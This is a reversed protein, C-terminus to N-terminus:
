VQSRRRHEVHEAHEVEHKHREEEVVSMIVDFQPGQFRKGYFIWYGALFIAMIGLVGSVYNMNNTSVPLVIPFCFFVNTVFVFIVSVTTLFYGWRGLKFPTDETQHKTLVSRGRILLIFIPIAYSLNLLITCSAVYATFAVTPGLYLLGFVLNFIQVFVICEVPVDLGKRIRGFSLM